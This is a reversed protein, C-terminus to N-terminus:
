RGDHQCGIQGCGDCWDGDELPQLDEPEVSHKHDDGIMVALVNGTRNEYGTWETDEDSETEWGLVYFAVGRWGRVTYRTAGPFANDDTEYHSNMTRM